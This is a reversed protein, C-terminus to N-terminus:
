AAKRNLLRRYHDAQQYHREADIKDGVAEFGRALVTLRDYRAQLDCAMQGEAQNRGDRGRLRRNTLNM